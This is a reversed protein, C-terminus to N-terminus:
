KEIRVIQRPVWIPCEGDGGQALCQIRDPEFTIISLMTGAEVTINTESYDTYGNPFFAKRGTTESTTTM